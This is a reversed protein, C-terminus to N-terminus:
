TLLGEDAGYANAAAFENAGRKLTPYDRVVM